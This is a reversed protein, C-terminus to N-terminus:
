GFLSVWSDKVLLSLLGSLVYDFAFIIVLFIAVVTLVILTNSVVSKGKPWTVKKLESIISKIGNFIRKFINKRPKGDKGKKVQKAKQAQIKESQARFSPKSRDDIPKSADRAPVQVDANLNATDAGNQTEIGTSKGKDEKAM